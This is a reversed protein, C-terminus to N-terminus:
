RMEKAPPANPYGLGTGVAYATAADHVPGARQRIAPEPQRARIAAQRHHAPEARVIRQKAIDADSAALADLGIRRGQACIALRQEDPIGVGGGEVRTSRAAALFVVALPLVVALGPGSAANPSQSAGEAAAFDHSRPPLQDKTPHSAPRRSRRRPLMSSGDMPPELPMKANSAVVRSGM